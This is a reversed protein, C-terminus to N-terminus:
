VVELYTGADAGFGFFGSKPAAIMCSAQQVGTCKVQLKVADGAPATLGDGLMQTGSTPLDNAEDVVAEGVMLRTYRHAAQAGNSWKLRASVVGSPAGTLTLITRWDSLLWQASGTLSTRAMTKRRWALGFMEEVEV